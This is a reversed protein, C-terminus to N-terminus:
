AKGEPTEIEAIEPDEDDGIQMPMPMPGAASKMAETRMEDAFTELEGLDVDVDDINLDAYDTTALKSFILARMITPRVAMKGSMLEDTADAGIEQELRVLEKMTFRKPNLDIDVLEKVGDRTIEVKM